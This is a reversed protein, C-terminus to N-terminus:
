KMFIFYKKGPKLEEPAIYSLIVGLLFGILAVVIALIGNSLLQKSVQPGQFVFQQIKGQPFLKNLRVKLQDQGVEKHPGIRITIERANGSRQVESQPFGSDHLKDRVQSVNVIQDFHMTISNGGTFDLGLNLGNMALAVISAIFIIVSFVAAIKQQRM